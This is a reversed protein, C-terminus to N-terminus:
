VSHSRVTRRASVAWNDGRKALVTSFRDIAFELSEWRSDELEDREIMLALEHLMRGYASPAQLARTVCAKLPHPSPDVIAFAAGARAEARRACWDDSAERHSSSSCYIPVRGVSRPTPVPGGCQTCERAGGAARQENRM